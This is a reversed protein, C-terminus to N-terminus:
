DKRMVELMILKVILYFNILKILIDYWNSM